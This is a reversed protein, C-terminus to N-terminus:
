WFNSGGYGWDWGGSCSTWSGLNWGFVGLEWVAAMIGDEREM